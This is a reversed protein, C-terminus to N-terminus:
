FVYVGGLMFIGLVQIKQSRALQLSLVPQIPLALIAFDTVVNVVSALADRFRILM